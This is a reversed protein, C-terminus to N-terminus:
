RAAKLHQRIGVVLALIQFVTGIGAAIRFGDVARQALLGLALADAALGLLTLFTYAVLGVMQAEKRELPRSQANGREEKYLTERGFIATLAMALGAFVIAILLLGVALSLNGLTGGRYDGGQAMAGAMSWALVMLGPIGMATAIGSAGASMGNAILAHRPPNVPPEAYVMTM